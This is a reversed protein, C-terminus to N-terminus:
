NSCTWNKHYLQGANHLRWVHEQMHLLSILLGSDDTLNKMDVTLNKEETSKMKKKKKLWALSESRSRDTCIIGLVSEHAALM